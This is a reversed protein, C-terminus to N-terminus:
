AFYHSADNVVVQGYHVLADGACRLLLREVGEAELVVGFPRM